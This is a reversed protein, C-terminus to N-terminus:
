QFSPVSMNVVNNLRLVFWYVEIQLPHTHFFQGM